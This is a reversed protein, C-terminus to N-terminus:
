YGAELAVLEPLGSFLSQQKKQQLLWPALLNRDPALWSRGTSEVASQRSYKSAREEVAMAQHAEVYVQEGDSGWKVAQNIIRVPVGPKVRAALWAIHEPYMRLCGHSVRRGVGGPNNTGHLLYGPLALRLAHDGLPNEPGAPVPYPLSVGAKAYEARISAPAYWAPHEVVDTVVTDIVPTQWGARGIGVPFVYIEGPTEKSFYYLRLEPLNVVIRQVPFATSIPGSPADPVIAQTPLQLVAGIPLQYTALTPNAALLADYGVRFKLALSEFSEDATVVTSSAQGILHKDASIVGHVLAPEGVQLSHMALQEYSSAAQESLKAGHGGRAYLSSVIFVLVFASCRCLGHWRFADDVIKARSQTM